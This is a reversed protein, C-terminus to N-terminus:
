TDANSSVKPIDYFQNIMLFNEFESFLIEYSFKVKYWIWM